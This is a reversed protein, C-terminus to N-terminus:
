QAWYAAFELPDTKQVVDPAAIKTIVSEPLQQIRPMHVLKKTKAHHFHTLL